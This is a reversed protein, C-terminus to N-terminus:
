QKVVKVITFSKDNFVKLSYVGDALNDINIQTTSGALVDTIESTIQGLVDILQITSNQSVNVNLISHAPNPYATVTIKDVDGLQNSSSTVESAVANGNVYAATSSLSSSSSQSVVQFRVSLLTSGTTLGSVGYSTFRISNDVVNALTKVANDANIITSFLLSAKDFQLAFDLSNVSLDSSIVVPVDLYNVGDVKSATANAYDFVVKTDTSSVLDSKLSSYQADTINKYNGDIDGILIGVYALENSFACANTPNIKFSADVSPVMDKSYGIGDPRPYVTSIQYKPASALALSDVFLWSKGAAGVQAFSTKMGVTRQNIQSVDGASIVGDLNVDMAIIQAATPTFRPDEVAVLAALYADYGNIVPMVDTSVAISRAISLDETTATVTFMGSGDPHTTTAGNTIVTSPGTSTIASNDAWFKLSGNFVTNKFTIVKGTAVAAPNISTEYSETLSSSFLVTDISRFDPTKVFQASAVQGIGNFSGAGQGNLYVSINMTGTINNYSVTNGVYLHNILDNNISIKGTPVVKSADYNIVIDFGTVNAIPAGAKVVPVDIFDSTNCPITQDAIVYPTSFVITPDLKAGSSSSTFVASTTGGTANSATVDFNTVGATVTWAFYFTNGVHNISVPASKLASGTYTYHNTGDFLDLTHVLSADGVKVALTVQDGVKFSTSNLYDTSTSDANKAYMHVSVVSPIANVTITPTASATVTALANDTVVASIVHSGAALSKVLTYPSSSVSGLSTAGDFFEVKSVSGDADSATATLTANANANIAISSSPSTIAIVPLANTATVTVASSTTTAGQNDTAKATYSHTGATVSAIVKTTATGSGLSTAGDFFEISAVSGDADAATATLTIGTALNVASASSALSITPAINALNVTITKAPTSTTTAADNDTAVATITHAGASLTKTLTYVSGSLTAVGLSTAGDFFEVKSVAAAGNFGSATVDSANARLKVSATTIGTGLNITSDPTLVSVTPAVNPAFLGSLSAATYEGFRGDTLSKPSSSVFVEAMGSTNGLQFNVTYSFNGDTTFQGILVSNSGASGVVGGSNAYADGNISFSNAGPQSDFSATIADDLTSSTTTIATNSGAIQGAPVEATPVALKGKSANGLSIWSDYLDAGTPNNIAIATGSGGPSNYFSTTTAFTLAHDSNGFVSQLKFGTKMDIYIRYTTAGIPLNPDATHDAASAVHYKEVVVGDLMTQAQTLAAGCVLGLGLILKKM